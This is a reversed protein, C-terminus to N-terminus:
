KASEKAAKIAGDSLKKDSETNHRSEKNEAKQSNDTHKSDKSIEGKFKMAKNKLKKWTKIPKVM